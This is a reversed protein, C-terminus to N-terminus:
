QKLWAKLNYLAYIIASLSATIAGSTKIFSALGKSTNLIQLISKIDNQQENYHREFVKCHTILCDVKANLENFEQKTVYQEQRKTM